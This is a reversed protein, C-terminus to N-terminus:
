REKVSEKKKKERVIEEKTKRGMNVYGTSIIKGPQYRFNQGCGKDVISLLVVEVFLCFFSFLFFCEDLPVVM